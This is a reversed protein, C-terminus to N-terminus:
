YGSGSSDGGGTGTGPDSTGRGQDMSGGSDITGGGTGSGGSGGGDRTHECGATLAACCLAAIAAVTLIGKKIRMM